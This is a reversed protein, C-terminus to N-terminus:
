LQPRRAPQGAGTKIHPHNKGLIVAAIESM